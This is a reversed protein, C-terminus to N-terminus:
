VGLETDKFGAAAWDDDDLIALNVDQFDPGQNSLHFFHKQRAPQLSAPGDTTDPFDPLHTDFLLGTTVWTAVWALILLHSCANLQIVSPMREGYTIM